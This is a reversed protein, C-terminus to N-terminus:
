LMRNFSIPGVGQALEDVFGAKHEGTLSGVSAGKPIIALPGEHQAELNRTKEMTAIDGWKKLMGLDNNRELAVPVGFGLLWLDIRLRM